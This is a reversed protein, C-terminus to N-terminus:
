GLVLNGRTYKYVTMQRHAVVTEEKDLHVRTYGQSLYGKEKERTRKGKKRM